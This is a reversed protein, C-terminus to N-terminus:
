FLRPYFTKLSEPMREGLYRYIEAHLEVTNTKMYQNQSELLKILADIKVEEYAINFQAVDIITLFSYSIHAMEHAIVGPNAWMPDISMEKTDAYTLAPVKTFQNNFVCYLNDVVSISVSDWFPQNIQPVNWASYWERIVGKIDTNGLTAQPNMSEEPHPLPIALLVPQRKFLAKLKDWCM